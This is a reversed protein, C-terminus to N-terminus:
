QAAPDLQSKDEPDFAQIMEEVEDPNEDRLDDGTVYTLVGKRREGEVEKALAREVAKYDDEELREDVWEQVEPVNYDDPNIVGHEGEVEEGLDVYEAQDNGFIAEKARGVLGKSFTEELSQSEGFEQETNYSAGKKDTGGQKYAEFEPGSPGMHPRRGLGSQYTEFAEDMSESVERGDKPM